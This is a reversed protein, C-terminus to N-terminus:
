GCDIAKHEHLRREKLGCPVSIMVTTGKEEESEIAIEYDGHYVLALREKVNRAGYRGIRQSAYKSNGKDEWIAEVQQRSMGVGTDRVHFLMRGAQRKGTICLSYNGDTKEFGHVIANEVFPQLILKPIEEELMGREITLQYELRKGFRMKQIHLYRDILETEMRVTTIGNGRNLVLRFLESLSLIDEGMEENGSGVAKWYLSDLTNYLFHPNIQAQLVDLESEREKLALVYNQEILERIDDVMQNFCEAAEGVEDKTAVEVRQSFDGLKFKGMADSLTHLPKSVLNSILVMVPYLGILIGFLMALPAYLVADAFDFLSVPPAMMYVTVGTEENRCQYVRFNEWTGCSYGEEGCPKGAAMEAIAEEPIDGCNVLADGDESLVAVTEQGGRLSNRCVEDFREASSGIVLYGLKNQRRLDYIERYMVIKSSFNMQYTDSDYHEVRQWLFKGNEQVARAYIETRRIEDMSGIYASRDICRLFPNVGNEPYIAITKIGESLAVMDQIMEMPAHNMWLRADRNLEEKKGSSLIKKVDDNICIYMGMEMINKQLVGISDSVQRISQMRSEEESQVAAKYNHMLLVMSIAILIPTIILYSYFILKWRISLQSIWQKIQKMANQVRRRRRKAGNKEPAM